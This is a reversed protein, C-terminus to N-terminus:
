GGFCRLKISFTYTQCFAYKFHIFHIFSFSHISVPSPSPIAHELRRHLQEITEEKNELQRQTRRLTTEQEELRAALQADAQNPPLRRGM